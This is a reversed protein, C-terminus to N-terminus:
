NPRPHVSYCMREDVNVTEFDILCDMNDSEYCTNAGCPYPLGCTHTSRMHTQHATGFVGLARGKVHLYWKDNAICKEMTGGEYINGIARNQSTASQWDTRSISNGISCGQWGKWDGQINKSAQHFRQNKPLSYRDKVGVFFVNYPCSRWQGSCSNVSPELDLMRRGLAQQCYNDWEQRGEEHLANMAAILKDCSAKGTFAGELKSADLMGNSCIEDQIEKKEDCNLVEQQWTAEVCEFTNAELLRIIEEDSVRYVELKTETGNFEVYTMCEMGERAEMVTYNMGLRYSSSFPSREQTKDFTDKDHSYDVITADEGSVAVVAGSSMIALLFIIINKKPPISAKEMKKEKGVFKEM